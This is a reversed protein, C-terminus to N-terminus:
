ARIVDREEEWTKLPEQIRLEFAEKLFEEQPEATVFGVLM